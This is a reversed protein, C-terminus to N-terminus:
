FTPMATLMANATAMLADMDTDSMSELLANATAMMDDAAPMTIQLSPMTPMVVTPIAVSGGGGAPTRQPRQDTVPQVSAIMMGFILALLLGALLTFSLTHKPNFRRM